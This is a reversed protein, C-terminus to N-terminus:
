IVDFQHAAISYDLTAAGVVASSVLSTGNMLWEVVNGANDRFIIDDRGDGNLDGTGDVHFSNSASGIAAPAGLLVGSSNLLWIALNGGNDRFLIDNSGNGDFDGVGVVHFSPSTSGVVAPVGALANNAVRWIAIDGNDHRFLIDAQQDGTFDDVAVIHYQPATSGLVKPVTSLANNAVGWTAIEGTNVNRFLLDSQGDGTFDGIGSNHWDPSTGGLVQVPQPTFGNMPLVALTTPNRLLIDDGPTSNFNGTGDIRFGAPVPGLSVVSSLGGSSNTQWVALPQAPDLNQFLIDDRGNNDFDGYRAADYDFAFLKFDDLNLNAKQVGQLTLTDGGGFNLVTNAGVQTALALIDSLTHLNPFATLDIRDPTLAGAVFDTFVDANGGPKYVLVDDGGNGTFTDRLQDGTFTDSAGDSVITRTLENVRARISHGSGDSVTSERISGVFGGGLAFTQGEVVQNTAAHNAGLRNGSADYAQQFYDASPADLFGVVFGGNALTSITANNQNGATDDNV